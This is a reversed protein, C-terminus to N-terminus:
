MNVYSFRYRRKVAMYGTTPDTFNSESPVGESRGQRDKNFNYLLKNLKLYINIYIEGEGVTTAKLISLVASM